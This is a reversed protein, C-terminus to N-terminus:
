LYTVKTYTRNNKSKEENLTVKIGEKRIADGYGENLLTILDNSLVKGGFYFKKKDEAVTFAIFTDDDMEVIEVNNITIVEGLLDKTEGKERGKALEVVTGLEQVREKLTKM